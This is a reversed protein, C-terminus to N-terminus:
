PVVVVRRGRIEDGDAHLTLRDVGDHLQGLLPKGEYEIADRARRDPRDLFTGDRWAVDVALVGPGRLRERGPRRGDGFLADRQVIREIQRRLQLGRGLLLERFVADARQEGRRRQAPRNM